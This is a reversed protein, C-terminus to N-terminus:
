YMILIIYKLGFHLHACSGVELKADLEQDSAIVHQDEKKGLKQIVAQKTTWYTKKMKHITSQENHALYHDQSMGHYGKNSLFLFICTVCIYYLKNRDGITRTFFLLFICLYSGAALFRSSPYRVFDYLSLYKVKNRVHTLYRDDSHFTNLFLQETLLM